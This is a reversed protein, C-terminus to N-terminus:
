AAKRGAAERMAGVIHAVECVPQGALHMAGIESAAKRAAKEVATRIAGAKADTEHGNEM